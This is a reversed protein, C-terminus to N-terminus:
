NDQEVWDRKEVDWGRAMYIFPTDIVAIVVKFIYKSLALTMATKFDVVGWWVVLGYILTDLGQSIITSVNNRLWLHKGKTKNKIHHFIWVDFSQSILYALLSGIVFRPSYDFLTATAEHMRAAISATSESTSPLYLLSISTMVLIIVSVSFGILGARTAERKGYRESLLDTSFYISSYLILGMSTQLGFIETLKPGQINALLLSIVVTGYLGQKGFIRFMVLACGLDILITGLWLLEQNDHVFNVIEAQTM